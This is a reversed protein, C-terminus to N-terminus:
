PVIQVAVPRGDAITVELQDLDGFDFTMVAQGNPMLRVAALWLGSYDAAGPGDLYHGRWAVPAKM